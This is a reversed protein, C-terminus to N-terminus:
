IEEQQAAFERLEVGEVQSIPAYGAPRRPRDRIFGRYFCISFSLVYILGALGTSLAQGQGKSMDLYEYDTMLLLWLTLQTSVVLFVAGAASVLTCYVQCCTAM